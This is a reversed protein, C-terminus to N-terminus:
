KNESMWDDVDVLRACHEAGRQVGPLIALANRVVSVSDDHVTGLKHVARLLAENAKNAISVLVHFGATSTIVAIPKAKHSNFIGVLESLFVAERSDVDLMVVNKAASRRAQAQYIASMDLNHHPDVNEHM